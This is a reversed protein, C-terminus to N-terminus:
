GFGYLLVCDSMLLVKDLYFEPLLNEDDNLELEKDFWCYDLETDWKFKLVDALEFFTEDKLFGWLV